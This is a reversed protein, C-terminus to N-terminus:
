NIPVLFLAKVGDEIVDEESFGIKSDKETLEELGAYGYWATEAKYSGSWMDSLPSYSNGETDKQCVVLRETDEKQLLEILNKVKM